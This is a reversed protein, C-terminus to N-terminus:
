LVMCHYICICNPIHANTTESHKNRINDELSPPDSSCHNTPKYQKVDSEAINWSYRQPQYICICNPIHANTTESHKNWKKKKMKGNSGIYFKTKHFGYQLESWPDYPLKITNLTAKLLIEAIDNRDTKNNSSIPTGPSFWRGTALWQCVKDCLTTCISYV